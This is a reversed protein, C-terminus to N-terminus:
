LTQNLEVSEVLRMLEQQNHIDIKKYIHRIHTKATGESIYLKEQIYASNHGKALFFMVEAERRSLLYNNAVMECRAKFRGSKAFDKSEDKAEDIANNENLSEETADVADLEDQQASQPLRAADKARAPVHSRPADCPFDSVLPCPIVLEEIEREQPLLAYAIVMVLLVVITMGSEGFPLNDVWQQGFLPMFSGILSSLALLGRGIGFVFLPSLRFRQALEGFFIWMMAEFCMYGILLFFSSFELNGTQSFPLFFVAVAIFPVLPRFLRNWQNDGGLALLTILILITAFGSALMMLVQELTTAAPTITQMSTHRLLGLAIGFIFVPLGFKVIFKMRQVPLPNFLPIIKQEQERTPSYKLLIFLEGLPLLSTLLGGIPLPTIQLIFAYIFVAVVIAIASNLVISASDCRSFATGWFSILLSTGIGTIIGSAIELAADIEQTGGPFLLLLTGLCTIIGAFMLTKRSAFIRSHNKEILGIILLCIGFVLISVVFTLSVSYGDAEGSITPTGFISASGFMASYIWAQRMGYGVALLNLDGFASEDGYDANLTIRPIRVGM